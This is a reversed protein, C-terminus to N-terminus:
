QIGFAQDLRQHILNHTNHWDYFLERSGWNAVDLALTAYANSPSALRVLGLHTLLHRGFWDEDPMTALPEPQLFIGLLNAAKRYTRHRQDHAGIWDDIGALDEYDLDGFPTVISM